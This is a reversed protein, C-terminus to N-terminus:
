KKDSDPFHAKAKDFAKQMSKISVGVGHEISDWAGETSDTLNKLQEKAENYEKELQDIHPQLKDQVDKAGLHMQLRAEDIRTQWESLDKDLKETKETRDTDTAKKNETNDNM